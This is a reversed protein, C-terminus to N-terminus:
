RGPAASSRRARQGGPALLRAARDLQRDDLRGAGVVEPHQALRPDDPLPGLAGRLEVRQAALLEVGAERPQEPGHEVAAREGWRALPLAARRQGGAAQAPLDRAPDPPPLRHPHSRVAARHHHRRRLGARRPDRRRGRAPRGPREAAAADATLRATGAAAQDGGDPRREALRQDAGRPSPGPGHHGLGAARSGSPTSPRCWAPGVPAAQAFALLGYYLPTVAGRWGAATHRFRFTRYAARAHTHFNVGDVGERALAFLTDLAWLASALRDSVGAAGSCAVSNLEDLRFATHHAHAARVLPALPAIAGTAAAASTLNAITPAESASPRRVCNTLPYLHYTLDRVRPEAALFPGPQPLWRLDGIAPGALAYRRPVLRSYRTFERTYAAVDYSRPRGFISRGHTM